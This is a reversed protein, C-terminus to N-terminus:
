SRLTASVWDYLVEWGAEYIEDLTTVQSISDMQGLLFNAIERNNSVRPVKQQNDVQKKNSDKNVRGKNTIWWRNAEGCM